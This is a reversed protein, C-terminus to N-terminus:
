FEPFELGPAKFVSFELLLSSGLFLFSLGLFRSGPFSLGLLRSGPFSLGLLRFYILYTIHVTLYLIVFLTPHQELSSNRGEPSSNWGVPSSNWGM